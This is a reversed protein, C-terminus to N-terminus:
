SCTLEWHNSDTLGGDSVAPDTPKFRRDSVLVYLNFTQGSRGACRVAPPFTAYRLRPNMPDPVSAPLFTQDNGDFWLLAAPDSPDPIFLRAHLDDPADPQGINPDDAVITLEFVDQATHAIPGFPPNVKTTVIVPSYNPPAPAQDLPTPIVCGVGYIVLGYLATRSVLGPLRQLLGRALRQHRQLHLRISM